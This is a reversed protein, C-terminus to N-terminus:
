LSPRFDVNRVTTEQLSKKMVHTMASADEPSPETACIMMGAADFNKLSVTNGTRIRASATTIGSEKATDLWHRIMQTHLQQGRHNPDVLVNLMTTVDENIRILAHAILTANADVFGIATQGGSFHARYFEADRPVVQDPGTRIQLATMAPVDTANLSVLTYARPAPAFRLFVPTIPYLTAKYRSM